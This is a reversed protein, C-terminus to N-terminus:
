AWILDNDPNYVVEGRGKRPAGRLTNRLYINRMKPSFNNDAWIVNESDCWLETSQRWPPGWLLQMTYTSQKWLSWLLLQLICTPENRKWLAGIAITIHLTGQNWLPGVAVTIYLYAVKSEFAGGGVATTIHFYRTWLAWLLIIYLCKEKLIGRLKVSKYHKM